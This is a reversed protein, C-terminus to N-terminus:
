KALRKRKASTIHAKMANLVTQTPTDPSLLAFAEVCFRAAPSIPEGNDSIDRTFDRSLTDTWFMAINAIWLGLASSKRPGKWTASPPPVDSAIRELVAVLQTIEELDPYVRGDTGFETPASLAPGSAVGSEDLAARDTAQEYARNLAVFAQDPLGELAEKLSGAKKAVRRIAASTTAPAKFSNETSNKWRWIAASDELLTGLDHRLANPISFDTIMKELDAERYTVRYQHAPAPPM